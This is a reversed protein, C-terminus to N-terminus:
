VGRSSVPLVMEHVFRGTFIYLRNGLRWAAISGGYSPWNAYGRPDREIRVFDRTKGYRVKGSENWVLLYEDEGRANKGLYGVFDPAYDGQRGGGGDAEHLVPNQPLCTWHRGDRSTAFGLATRDQRWGGPASKDLEGGTGRLFALWQGNPLRQVAHYSSQSNMWRASTSPLVPRLPPNTPVKHDEWVTWDHSSL